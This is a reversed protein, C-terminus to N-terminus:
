RGADAEVRVPSIVGPPFIEIETLCTGDHGQSRPTIVNMNKKDQRGAPWFTFRLRKVNKAMPEGSDDSVHTVARFTVTRPFPKDGPRGVRIENKLMRFPGAAPATEVDYLQFARIDTHCSFVRISAIDSERPLTYTLITATTNYNRSNADACMVFEDFARGDTLLATNSAFPKFGAGGVEPKLGFVLNRHRVTLYDGEVALYQETRLEALAVAPLLLLFSILLFGRM